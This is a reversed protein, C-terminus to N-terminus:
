SRRYIPFPIHILPNVPNFYRSASFKLSSCLVACFKV